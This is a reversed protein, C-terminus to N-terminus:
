HLGHRRAALGGTFGAADGHWGPHQPLRPAHGGDAAALRQGPRYPRVAPWPGRAHEGPDAARDGGTACGGPQDVAPGPAGPHRTSRRWGDALADWNSAALAA